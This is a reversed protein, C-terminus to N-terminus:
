GMNKAKMVYAVFDRGTFTRKQKFIGSRHDAIIGSSKIETVLRAFEDPECALMDDAEALLVFMSYVVASLYYSNHVRLAVFMSYHFFIIAVCYYFNHVLLCFGYALYFITAEFVHLLKM